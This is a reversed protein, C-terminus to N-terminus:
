LCVRVRLRCCRLVYLWSFMLFFFFDLAREDAFCLCYFCFVGNMWHFGSSLVVASFIAFLLPM